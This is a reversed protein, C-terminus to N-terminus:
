DRIPPPADDPTAGIRGAYSQALARARRTAQGQIVGALVLATLTMLQRYRPIDIMRDTAVYESYVLVGLYGVVSAATAFGVLGPRFRLGSGAVVLFYGAVLPSRPGDAVAIMASLLVADLGTAVYALGEPFIRRRLCVHVGAAMLVWAACLATAVRHFVENRNRPFLEIAGLNVGFHNILEITYFAAVASLRILNVTVEARYAEWRGAIFWPRDARDATATTGAAVSM